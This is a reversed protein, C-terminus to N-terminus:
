GIERRCFAELAGIQFLVDTVLEEASLQMRRRGFGVLDPYSVHAGIVVGRARAVAVTANMTRPDGAHFGCAVNASTVLELLCEDSGMRYSGFSEGVDSNLDIVRGGGARRAPFPVSGPPRGRLRAAPARGRRLDAPCGPLPHPVPM